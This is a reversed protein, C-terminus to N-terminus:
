RLAGAIALFGWSAWGVGSLAHYGPAQLDTHAAARVAENATVEVSARDWAILSTAIGNPLTAEEITYGLGKPWKERVPLLIRREEFNSDDIAIFAM